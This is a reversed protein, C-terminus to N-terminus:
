GNKKRNAIYNTVYPPIPDPFNEPEGLYIHGYLTHPYESLGYLYGSLQLKEKDDTETLSLDFNMMDGYRDNLRSDVVAMIGSSNEKYVKDVYSYASVLALTKKDAITKASDVNLTLHTKHFVVAQAGDDTVQTQASAIATKVTAGTIKGDNIIATYQLTSSPSYSVRDDISTTKVSLDIKHIHKADATLDIRCHMSAIGTKKADEDTPLGKITIRSVSNRTTSLTVSLHLRELTKKTDALLTNREAATLGAVDVGTLPGLNKEVFAVLYSNDLYLEGNYVSLQAETIKPFTMSAVDLGFATEETQTPDYAVTEADWTKRGDATTCVDKVTDDYYTITELLEDKGDFNSFTQRYEYDGKRAWSVSANQTSGQAVLVLGRIDALSSLASDGAGEFLTAPTSNNFFRIASEKLTTRDVTSVTKPTTTTTTRSPVVTTSSPLSTAGEPTDSVDSSDGRGSESASQAVSSPASSVAGDDCGVLAVMSLLLVLVALLVITKKMTM